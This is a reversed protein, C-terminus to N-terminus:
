LFGKIKKKGSWIQIEPIVGTGLLYVCSVRCSVWDCAGEKFFGTAIISFGTSHYDGIVDFDRQDRWEGLMDRGVANFFALGGYLASALLAWV